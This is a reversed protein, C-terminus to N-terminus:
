RPCSAGDVTARRCGNHRLHELIRWERGFRLMGLTTVQEAPVIESITNRATEM